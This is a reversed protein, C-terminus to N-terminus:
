YSSRHPVGQRGVTRINALGLTALANRRVAQIFDASHIPCALGRGSEVLPTTVGDNECYLCTTRM